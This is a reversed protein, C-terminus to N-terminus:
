KQYALKQLESTTLTSPVRFLLKYVGRKVEGLYGAATLTRRYNDVTLESCSLSQGEIMFKILDKRTIEDGVEYKTLFFVLAQFVTNFTTPISKLESNSKNPLVFKYFGKKNVRAILDEKEATIYYFCKDDFNYTKFFKLEPKIESQYFNRPFEVALHINGTLSDKIAFIQKNPFLNKMRHFHASKNMIIYNNKISELYSELNHFETPIIWTALDSDGYSIYYEVSVIFFRETPELNIRCHIESNFKETGMRRLTDIMEKTSQESFVLKIDTEIQEIEKQSLIFGDKGNLNRIEM